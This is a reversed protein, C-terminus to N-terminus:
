HRVTVEGTITDIVWMVASDEHILFQYRGVQSTALLICIGLFKKSDM